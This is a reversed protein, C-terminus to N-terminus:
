NDVNHCFCGTPDGTLKSGLFEDLLGKNNDSGHIASHCETCGYQLGIGNHQTRHLPPIGHCQKCLGEGPQDLLRENPSGHPRHCTICGGDGQTSFSSTAEHEYLFPGSQDPHCSFCDASGGHGFTPENKGTFDHCSICTVDGDTLPHNSRNRFQNEVGVHCRTCFGAQEDVLLGQHKSHVSHCDTCRIDKGAHPDIGAIGMQKHPDHCQTCTQYAAKGTLRAPNGITEISPDEIHVAGNSHCSVCAITIAPKTMESSLAHTTGKLTKDMGDHCELCTEDDVANDEAKVSLALTLLVATVALLGM